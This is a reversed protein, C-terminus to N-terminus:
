DVVKLIKSIDDIAKTKLKRKKIALHKPLRTSSVIKTDKSMITSRDQLRAQRVSHLQFEELWAQAFNDMTTIFSPKAKIKSKDLLRRIYISFNPKSSKGM